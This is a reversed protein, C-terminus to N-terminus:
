LSFKFSDVWRDFKLAASYNWNSKPLNNTISIMVNNHICIIQKHFYEEIKEGSKELSYFEIIIANKNNLWGNKTSIASIGTINSKLLDVYFDKMQDLSFKTVKEQMSANIAYVSYNSRDVARAITSPAIGNDYELGNPFSVYFSYLENYYNNEIWYGSNKDKEIKQKNLSINKEQDISFDCDCDIRVSKSIEEFIPEYKKEIEKIAGNPSSSKYGMAFFVQFTYERCIILYTRTYDFIQNGRLSHFSMVAAKKGDIFSVEHNVLVSKSSEARDEAYFKSLYYKQDNLTYSENNKKALIMYSYTSTADIFYPSTKENAKQDVKYSNLYSVSYKLSPDNFFVGEYTLTNNNKLKSFDLDANQASIKNGCLQFIFFILITTPYSLVIKNANISYNLIQTNMPITYLTLFKVFKLNKTKLLCYSYNM